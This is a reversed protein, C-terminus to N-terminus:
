EYMTVYVYSDLVSCVQLLVQKVQKDALVKNTGVHRCGIVRHRLLERRARCCYVLAGGPLFTDHESCGGGGEILLGRSGERSVVVTTATSEVHNRGATRTECEWNKNRAQKEFGSQVVVAVFGTSFLAVRARGSRHYTAKNM